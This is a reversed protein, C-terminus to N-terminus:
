KKFFQGIKEGKKQRRQEEKIDNEKNSKDTFFLEQSKEYKYFCKLNNNNKNKNKNQNNLDKYFRKRDPNEMNSFHENKEKYTKYPLLGHCNIQLPRCISRTTDNFLKLLKESNSKMFDIIDNNEDNLITKKDLGLYLCWILLESSCNWCHDMGLGSYDISKEHKDYPSFGSCKIPHNFYGVLKQSNNFAALKEEFITNKITKYKYPENKPPCKVILRTETTSVGGWSQLLIEGDLYRYRFPEGSTFPVRWKIMASVPRIEEIWKYQLINDINVVNEKKEVTNDTKSLARIDSVLYIEIGEKSKEAWYKSEEDLFLQQHLTVNKPRINDNRLNFDYRSMDYLHFEVNSFLKALYMIHLGPAAGPYVMIPPNRRKKINQLNYQSLFWVETMLLKRQGIHPVSCKGRLFESTRKEENMYKTKDKLQHFFLPCSEIPIKSNYYKQTIKKEEEELSNISYPNVNKKLKKSNELRNKLEYDKIIFKFWSGKINNTTM